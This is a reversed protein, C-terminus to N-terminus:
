ENKTERNLEVEIVSNSGIAGYKKNREKEGEKKRFWCCEEPHYRIGKDLSECNRCPKKEEYKKRNQVKEGKKRSINNKNILDECKRVENFLETSDKCKKKDIRNRIFEPLGAAILIVLTSSNINKDMDLLLREKRMAYEIILGEKYKFSIAYMGTSWGQDAFTELFRAKWVSWEASVTLKTLTACHWDICAKDLFLRLIEIKTSDETIEFRTCEKEFTELWQEANSHKSTFKEVMFKQAINKLNRQSGKKQTAEEEKEIKETIEDLYTEDCMVNEEEDIYMKEMEKTLSIWVKRVQHRKTLSKKVRKYVDTKM